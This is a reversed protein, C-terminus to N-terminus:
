SFSSAPTPGRLVSGVHRGNIIIPSACEVLGRPCRYVVSGGADPVHENVYLDSRRCEGATVPHRRHFDTCADAWGSATLVNGETDIVATPCSFADHLRDLLDQVKAVNILDQLRRDM